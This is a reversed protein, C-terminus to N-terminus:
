QEGRQFRNLRGTSGSGEFRWMRRKRRLRLLLEIWRCGTRDRTSILATGIEHNGPERTGPAERVTSASLPYKDNVQLVLGPAEQSKGM